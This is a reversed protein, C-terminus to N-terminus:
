CKGLRYNWISSTTPDTCLVINEFKRSKANKAQKLVFLAHSIQKQQYLGFLIAMVLKCWYSHRFMTHVKRPFKGRNQHPSHKCYVTESRSHRASYKISKDCYMKKQYSEIIIQKFLVLWIVQQSGWKSKPIIKSLKFWSPVTIYWRCIISYQLRICFLHLKCVIFVAITRPNVRTM